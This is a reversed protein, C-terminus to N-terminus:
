DSPLLDEVTVNLVRALDRWLIGSGKRKGSELDSVHTATKLGVASGLQGQTLGRYERWVRLASEGALLRDVLRAPIYEGGAARRQAAAAAADVDVRDEAQDVLREYDAVPLVAMKEGAIEVIQVGM